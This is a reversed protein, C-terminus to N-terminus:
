RMHPPFLSLLDGLTMVRTVGDPAPLIPLKIRARWLALSEMPHPLPIGFTRTTDEVKPDWRGPIPTGCDPCGGSLIRNKLVRFGYRKIV